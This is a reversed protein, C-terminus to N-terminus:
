PVSISPAGLIKPRPPTRLPMRATFVGMQTSIIFPVTELNTLSQLHACSASASVTDQIIHIERSFQRLSLNMQSGLSSAQSNKGWHGAPVTAETFFVCKKWDIKSLIERGLEDRCEQWTKFDQYVM